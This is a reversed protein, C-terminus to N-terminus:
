PAQDASYDPVAQPTTACSTGDCDDSTSFGFRTNANSGWLYATGDEVIATAFDRGGGVSVVATLEIQTPVRIVASTSGIGVQGMTNSGWAYLTGDTKRAYATRGGASIEEVGNLGGVIAPAAKPGLQSSGLGLQGVENNGWSFVKGDSTLALSFDLGAAVQVATTLTHVGVASDGYADDQDGDGLQGSEGAGWSFVLGSEALFLAHDGFRSAVQVITSTGSIQTAPFGSFWSWAAGDNRVYFRHAASIVDTLPEGGDDLVKAPADISGSSGTLDGADGGWAWLAGDDVIAYSVEDGLEIQRIQAVGEVQTPTSQQETSGDGLQGADNLGVSWASGDIANIFVAHADGAASRMDFLAELVSGATSEGGVEDEGQASSTGEQPIVSGTTGNGDGVSGFGGDAGFTGTVLTKGGGGGCSLLFIVVSPALACSVSRPSMLTGDACLDWAHLSIGDQSAAQGMFASQPTVLASFLGRKRRHPPRKPGAQAQEWTACEFECM